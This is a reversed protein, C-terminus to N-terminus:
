GQVFKLTGHEEHTHGWIEKDGDAMGLVELTKPFLEKEESDHHSIVFNCWTTAYGIFDAYDEEQIKSAQLYMTNYGRLVANHMLAM